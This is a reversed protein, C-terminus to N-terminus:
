CHQRGQALFGVSCLSPFLAMALGLIFRVDDCNSESDCTNKPPQAQLPPLKKNKAGESDLFYLSKKISYGDMARVM